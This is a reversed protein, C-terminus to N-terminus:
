HCKWHIACQFMMSCVDCCVSTYKDSIRFFIITYGWTIKPCIQLGVVCSTVVFSTVLWLIVLYQTIMM